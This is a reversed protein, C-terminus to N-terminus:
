NAAAPQRAGAFGNGGGNLAQQAADRAPKTAGEIAKGYGLLTQLIAQIKADFSLASGFETVSVNEREFRAILTSFNFKLYYDPFEILNKDYLGQVQTLTRHRYPDLSMLIKERQLQEPNNRFKTQHYDSLMEDLIDDPTNKILAQQYYELLMEATALYFTQGYDVSLSTFKNDYRLRCITEETWRQVREFHKKIKKLVDTKSEFSSMVQKENQAQDNTPEGGVGVIGEYIELARRQIEAVHYDLSEVPTTIIGAPIGLPKDDGNKPVPLKLVTGAGRFKGKCKPCPCLQSSGSGLSRSMIYSGATTRLFGGDCYDHTGPDEFDCDTEHMWWVPYSNGLDMEDKSVLFFLLKDLKSLYKAFPHEECWFETVPCYGLGHPTNVLEEVIEDTGEKTSFVQYASNDFFAIRTKDLRFVIWEVKSEQGGYEESCEYDIVDCLRLFYPYPQPLPTTQKEPLDVVIFSKFHEQLECFAENRWFWNMNLFDNRYEHWDEKATPTLFEARYVPDRGDFIKELSDYIESTLPVTDVPYRFMSLFVRHRDYNQLLDKVFTLFETVALSCDYQSLAAESHLRVRQEVAQAKAIEQRKKPEQLIAKIEAITKAM